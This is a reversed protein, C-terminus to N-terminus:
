LPSASRSAAKSCCRAELKQEERTVQKEAEEIEKSTRHMTTPYIANQFKTCKKNGHLVVFWIMATWACRAAPAAPQLHATCPSASRQLRPPSNKKKHAPQARPRHAASQNKRHATPACDRSSTKARLLHATRPNHPAVPTMNKVM